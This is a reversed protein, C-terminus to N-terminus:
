RRSGLIRGEKHGVTRVNGNAEYEQEGFFTWQDTAVQVVQSVFASPVKTKATPDASATDSQPGPALRQVTTTKPDPPSPQVTSKGLGGIADLAKQLADPLTQGPASDVTQQLDNTAKAVDTAAQSLSDMSLEDLAEQLHEQSAKLATTESGPPSEALRARIAKMLQVIKDQVDQSDAM